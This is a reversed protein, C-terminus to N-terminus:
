EVSLCGVGEGGLVNLVRMDFRPAEGEGRGEMDEVLEPNGRAVNQWADEVLAPVQEVGLVHGGPGVLKAMAATLYGSGSGVDLASAGSQLQPELLSLCIAHM